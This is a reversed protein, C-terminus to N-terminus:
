EDIGGETVIDLGTNIEYSDIVKSELSENIDGNNADVYVSPKDANTVNNVEITTKNSFPINREDPTDEDAICYVQIFDNIDININREYHAM